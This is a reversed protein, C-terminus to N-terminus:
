SSMTYLYHPPLSTTLKVGYKRVDLMVLNRRYPRYLLLCLLSGNKTALQAICVNGAGAGLKNHMGKANGTV